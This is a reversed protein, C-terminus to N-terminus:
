ARKAGDVNTIVSTKGGHALHEHPSGVLSVEIINGAEDVHLTFRLNMDDERIDGGLVDKSIMRVTVTPEARQLVYKGLNKAKSMISIVEDVESPNVIGRTGSGMLPKLYLKSKGKQAEIRMADVRTKEMLRMHLTEPVCARLAELESDTFHVKLIHEIDQFGASNHLLALAGKSELDDRRDSVIRVSQRVSDENFSTGDVFASMMIARIALVPQGERKCAGLFGLQVLSGEAQPIAMLNPIDAALIEMEPEHFRDKISLLIGTSHGDSLTEIAEAAGIGLPTNAQKRVMAGYGLGRIKGPEIEVIRFGETTLIIDAKTIQPRSLKPTDIEGRIRAQHLGETGLLRRVTQMSKDTSPANLADQSLESMGSAFQAVQLARLNLEDTQEDNLQLGDAVRHNRISDPRLTELVLEQRDRLSMTTTEM